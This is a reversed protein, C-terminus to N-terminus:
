MKGTRYIFGDLAANPKIRHMKFYSKELISDFIVSIVWCGPVPVTQSQESVVDFDVLSQQAPNTVSLITRESPIMDIWKSFRVNSESMSSLNMIFYRAAVAERCGTIENVMSYVLFVDNGASKYLESDKLNSTQVRSLSASKLIDPYYGEESEFLKQSESWWCHAAPCFALLVMLICVLYSVFKM